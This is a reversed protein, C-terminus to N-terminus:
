ESRFDYKDKTVDDITKGNIIVTDDDVWEIDAESYHYDWYINRDKKSDDNYHLTCLVAFDTTAGGNNRYAEVTYTNNPSVSEKILEQGKIHSIDFFFYYFFASVILALAVVIALIIVLIRKKKTM